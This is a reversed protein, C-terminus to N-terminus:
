WSYFKEGMKQLQKYLSENYINKGKKITIDIYYMLKSLQEETPNDIIYGQHECYKLDLDLKNIRKIFDVTRYENERLPIIKNM